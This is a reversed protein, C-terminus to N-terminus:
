QILKACITNIVYRMYDYDEPKIELEPYATFDFSYYDMQINEALFEKLERKRQNNMLFKM